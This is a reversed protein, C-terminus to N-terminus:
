NVIKLAKHSEQYAKLDDVFLSHTRKVVRNGPEGMRYGGSHQLLICVPIETICFGVPSYSDGQLFRCFIRIWRSTMKKSGNWIELRTKWKSMLDVILRIVNRPIGIWDYVRIMWDHHVKDYAKNYDYFAVALNRHNQKVKEMIRRDIILQDVMGLVGEVAGLQGEDWIESVLAHERMYKAVLGTLIKYSTNLCTIPRYNKEDSLNKTNPLLVTRGSLWWEPMRSTDQYLSTFAKALAKQASTFKKWWYNQIGDIGPATWNKRKSTEKRLKEETVEFQSVINAKKSLEAKVEEMWPMNPTPENQEWIGGWFEVFKEMEPMEGEHKEVKELTRFFSKQDKQFM